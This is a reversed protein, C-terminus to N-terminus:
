CCHVSRRCRRAADELMEIQGNDMSGADLLVNANAPFSVREEGRELAERLETTNIVESM